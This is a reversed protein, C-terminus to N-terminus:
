LCVSFSGQSMTSVLRVRVGAAQTLLVWEPSSPRHHAGAYGDASHTSFSRDLAAPGGGTGSPFRKPGHM